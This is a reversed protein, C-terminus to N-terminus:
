EIIKFTEGVAFSYIYPYGPFFNVSIAQNSKYYYDYQMQGGYWIFKHQWKPNRKNTKIFDTDATYSEIDLWGRRLYLLPGISVSGRHKINEWRVIRDTLNVGVHTLSSFKGACDLPMFTQSMKIGVYDNFQYATTFTVGVYAAVRGKEDLTWRYITEHVKRQPHFALGSIKVGFTVQSESYNAFCICL